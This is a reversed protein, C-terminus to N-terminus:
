THLDILTFIPGHECNRGTYRFIARRISIPQDAVKTGDFAIRDISRQNFPLYIDTSLNWNDPIEMTGFLRDDFAFLHAKM